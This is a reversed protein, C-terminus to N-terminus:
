GKLNDVKYDSSLFEEIQVEKFGNSTKLLVSSNDDSIKVLSMKEYSESFNYGNVYTVWDGYELYFKDHFNKDRLNVFSENSFGNVISLVKNMVFYELRQIIKALLFGYIFTYLIIVLFFIGGVTNKPLWVLVMGLLAFFFFVLFSVIIFRMDMIRNYMKYTKDHHKILLEKKLAFNQLVRQGFDTMQVEKPFIRCFM